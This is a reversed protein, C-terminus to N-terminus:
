LNKNPARMEDALRTTHNYITRTDLFLDSSACWVQQIKRCMCCHCWVGSRWVFCASSFKQFAPWKSVTSARFPVFFAPSRGHGTTCVSESCLCPRSSPLFSYVASTATGRGQGKAARLQSHLTDIAALSSVPENLWKFEGTPSADVASGTLPWGISIRIGLLVSYSITQEPTKCIQRAELIGIGYSQSCSHVLALKIICGVQHNYPKKCGEGLGGM